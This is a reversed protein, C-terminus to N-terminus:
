PLSNFIVSRRIRLRTTYTTHVAAQTTAAQVLGEGVGGAAVLAGAAGAVVPGAAAALGVVGAAAAVVAGAAAAVVAGATAAAGVPVGMLTPTMSSTVPTPAISPASMRMLVSRTTCRALALPPMLPCGSFTSYTSGFPSAVCAMLRAVWSAWCPLLYVNRTYGTPRCVNSVVVFNSTWFKPVFHPMM